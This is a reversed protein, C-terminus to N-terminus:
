QKVYGIQKNLFMKSQQERWIEAQKDELTHCEYQKNTPARHIMMLSVANYGVVASKRIQDYFYLEFIKVFMGHSVIIYLNHHGEEKKLSQILVDIAKLCVDVIKQNSSFYNEKHLESHNDYDVLKNFELPHENILEQVKNFAKQIHMQQNENTQRGKIREMIADEVHFLKEKFQIVEHDNFQDPHRSLYEAIGLKMHHATQLCRIFPSVVFRSRKLLNPSLQRSIIKAFMYGTNFSHLEGDKTLVTDYYNLDKQYVGYVEDHREGHRCISIFNAESIDIPIM